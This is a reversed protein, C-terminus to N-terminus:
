ILVIKRKRPQRKAIISVVGSAATVANFESVGLGETIHSVTFAERLEESNRYKNIFMSNLDYELRIADENSLIIGKGMFVAIDQGIANRSDSPLSAHINLMGAKEHVLILLSANLYDRGNMKRNNVVKIIHGNPVEISKNTAFGGLDKKGSSHAPLYISSGSNEKYQKSPMIFGSTITGGQKVASVYISGSSREYVFKGHSIDIRNKVEKTDGM